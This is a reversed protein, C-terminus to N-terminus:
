RGAGFERIVNVAASIGVKIAYREM